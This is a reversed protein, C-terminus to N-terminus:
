SSSRSISSTPPSRSRSARSSAIPAAHARRGADPVGDVLWRLLQRWFNEHTMDEVPMKADMQWLWSDQVPLRSRRAAATASTPSCWSRRPAERRHREPAGDRGAEADAAPQRQHAGAARELAREVGSRHAAIQTVAHAEGARTPRVKLRAVPLDDLSRAVREIVCRCCTPSRRAPM